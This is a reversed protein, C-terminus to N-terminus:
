KRVQIFEDLAAELQGRRGKKLSEGQAMVDIAEHESDNDGTEDDRGYDDEDYDEEDDDDEYERLIQEFHDEDIAQNRGGDDEYEEETNWSMDDEDFYEGDENEEELTSLKGGTKKDQLGMVTASKNLLKAMHAEFDFDQVTPEAMAQSVFDDDLEEFSGVEDADDFLAARLDEDMCEESITIANQLIDPDLDGQAFVEEPLEMHKARLLTQALENAGYVVGGDSDAFHKSYDYGDNAFGLENVHDRTKRSRASAVSGMRESYM